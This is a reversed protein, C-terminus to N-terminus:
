VDKILSACRADTIDDETWTDSYDVSRGDGREHLQAVWM